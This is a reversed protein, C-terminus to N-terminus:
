FDFILIFLFNRVRISVIKQIIEQFFLNVWDPPYSLKEEVQDSPNSYFIHDYMVLKNLHNKHSIADKSKFQPSYLNNTPLSYFTFSLM